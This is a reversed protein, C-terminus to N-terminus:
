KKSLPISCHVEGNEVFTYCHVSKQGSKVFAHYDPDIERLHSRSTLSGNLQKAAEGKLVISGSGDNFPEVVLDASAFSTISIFSVLFFLSVFIQKM